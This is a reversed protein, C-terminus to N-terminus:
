VVFSAVNRSKQLNTAEEKKPQKKVAGDKHTLYFQCMNYINSRSFGKGFETTLVKSLQRISQKKYDSDGIHLEEDEVIIKGIQWYTSLLTTNVEVAIKQRSSELLSKIQEILNKNILDNM